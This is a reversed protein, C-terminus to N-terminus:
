LPILAVVFVADHLVTILLLLMIVALLFLLLLLLERSRLHGRWGGRVRDWWRRRVARRRGLLIEGCDGDRGPIPVCVLVRGKVQDSLLTELCLSLRTQSPALCNGLLSFSPFYFSIISFCNNTPEIYFYIGIQLLIYIFFINKHTYTVNWKM